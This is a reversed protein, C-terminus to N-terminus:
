LVIKKEGLTKKLRWKGSQFTSDEMKNVNGM